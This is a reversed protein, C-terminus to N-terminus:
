HEVHRGEVPADARTQSQTAPPYAAPRAAAPAPAGAPAVGAPQDARAAGRTPPQAPEVKEVRKALQRNEARLERRERRLRRGRKGGARLMWLGLVGVVLIAAGAVALWYPDVTWSWRWMHVTVQADDNAIVLEIAAVVAVALFILGLVIM